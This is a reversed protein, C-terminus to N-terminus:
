EYRQRRSFIRCMYEGAYNSQTPNNAFSGGAKRLGVRWVREPFLIELTRSHCKFSATFSSSWYYLWYLLGYGLLLPTVGLRSPLRARAYSARPRLPLLM